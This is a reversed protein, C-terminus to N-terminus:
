EDLTPRRSKEVPMSLFLAAAVCGLLGCSLWLSTANWSFLLTGIMPALVGGTGWAFSWTGQYRARLHAPALDSVHALAAPIFAIGGIGWIVVTVVLKPITDATATLCFGLGIFFSGLSIASRARLRQSLSALPLTAMVAILANLSILLGYVTNSLGNARVHLAFTSGYQFFVFATLLTAALLYLFARDRLVARTAEGRREARGNRLSPPLTLLAILGFVASTIADCLFILSYSQSTLFGGVAPGLALGGNTALQHMAFTTTRQGVPTLDALLAVAAPHHLEGVLGALGALVVILRLDQTQSLAIMVAASLFMSAAITGKRDIKDATYGGVINGM